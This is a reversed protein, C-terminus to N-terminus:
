GNVGYQLMSDDDDSEARARLWRGFLFELEERDDDDDSDDHHWDEGTTEVEM